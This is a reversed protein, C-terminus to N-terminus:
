VDETSSSYIAETSYTNGPMLSDETPGLGVTNVSYGSLGTGHGVQRAGTGTSKEGCSEALVGGSRAKFGGGGPPVLAGVGVIEGSLKM